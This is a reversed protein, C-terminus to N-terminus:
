FNPILILKLDLVLLPLKSPHEVRRCPLLQCHAPPCREASSPASSGRFRSCLPRRRPALPGSPPPSPLSGIVPARRGASCCPHHTVPSPPDAAGRRDHSPTALSRPRSSRAISRAFRPASQQGVGGRPKEYIPQKIPWFNFVQQRTVHAVVLAM